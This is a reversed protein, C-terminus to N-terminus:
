AGSLRALQRRLLDAGEIGLRRVASALALAAAPAASRAARQMEAAALSLRALGLNGAMGVLDHGLRAMAELDGSRELEALQRLRDSLEILGDAILEALPATGLHGELRALYEADLTPREPEAPHRQFM